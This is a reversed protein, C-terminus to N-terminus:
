SRENATVKHTRIKNHETGNSEGHGGRVLPITHILAAPRLGKLQQVDLIAEVIDPLLYILPLLRCVYTDTVDDQAAVDTISKAKGSEVRRRWRHAKV